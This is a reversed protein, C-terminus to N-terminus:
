FRNIDIHLNQAGLLKNSKFLRNVPGWGVKKSHIPINWYDSQDVKDLHGQNYYNCQLHGLMIAASWSSAIRINVISVCIYPLYTTLM